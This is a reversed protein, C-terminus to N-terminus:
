TLMTEFWLVIEVFKSTFFLYVEYLCCRNARNRKPLVIASSVLQVSKYIGAVIEM